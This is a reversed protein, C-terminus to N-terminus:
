RRMVPQAKPDQSQWWDFFDSVMQPTWTPEGIPMTGSNVADHIQKAYYLVSAEDHLDMVKPWNRSVQKM